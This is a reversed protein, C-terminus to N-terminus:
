QVIRPMAVEHSLMVSLLPSIEPMEEYKAEYSQGKKLSGPGRELRRAVGIEYPRSNRTELSAIVLGLEHAPSSAYYDALFQQAARVDATAGASLAPAYEALEAETCGTADLESFLTGSTAKNTLM